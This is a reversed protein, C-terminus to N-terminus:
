PSAPPRGHWPSAEPRSRTPCPWGAAASFRAEDTNLVPTWVRRPAGLATPRRPRRPPRPRCLLPAEGALADLRFSLRLRQRVAGGLRDVKSAREPDLTGCACLVLTAAYVTILDGRLWTCLGACGPATLGRTSSISRPGRVAVLDPGSRTRGSLARPSSRARIFLSPAQGPLTPGCSPWTPVTPRAAALRIQARSRASRRARTRARARRGRRALIPLACLERQRFACRDLFTWRTPAQYYGAHVPEHASRLRAPATCGRGHEM